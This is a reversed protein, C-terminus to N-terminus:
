KPRPLPGLYPKPNEPALVGFALVGPAITEFVTFESLGPWQDIDFHSYLPPFSGAPPTPPNNKLLWYGPNLKGPGYTWIGPLYEVLKDNMSVLHEPHVVHKQGLGSCQVQGMPNAGLAVDASACLVDYLAKDGTLKWAYVLQSLQGTSHTGM